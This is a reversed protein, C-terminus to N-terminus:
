LGGEFEMSRLWAFLSRLANGRHSVQFKEEHSAEALTKGLKHCFFLPDYGFGNSGRPERLMEGEVTGRASHLVRGRQALSIVSVFRARRDSLADLRKLALANNEEDTAHEGAFRASRVGPAGGLADIDLGSDDAFVLGDSFQSYYVAKSLSNEEFTQGNEEPPIMERIGPLAEIGFEQSNFESAAHLFERLKGANSTCAYLVIM